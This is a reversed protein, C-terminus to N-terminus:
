GVAEAVREALLALGIGVMAVGAAKTVYFAARPRSRLLRKALVAVISYVVACNILHIAGLGFMQLTPPLAHPTTFQPLLALLLLLGKPNIGSVGAGRLFRKLPVGDITADGATIPGAPSTLTRIGLWILYAGGIVTLAMLAGPIRTVLAGAGLAVASVVLTYGALMGLISPAVNRTQVGAAIAYAWDAGPTLVLLLGITWFQAVLAPDM